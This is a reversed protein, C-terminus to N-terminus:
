DLWVSSKSWLSYKYEIVIWPFIFILFMNLYLLLKNMPTPLKNFFWVSPNFVLLSINSFKHPKLSLSLSFCITLCNSLVWCRPTPHLYHALFLLIPGHRLIIHVVFIAHANFSMQFSIINLQPIHIHWIRHRHVKQFMRSVLFNRPFDKEASYYM